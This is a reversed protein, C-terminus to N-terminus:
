KSFPNWFGYNFNIDYQFKAGGIYGFNVDVGFNIDESQRNVMLHGNYGVHAGGATAGVKTFVSFGLFTGGVGVDGNLAHAGASNGIKFGYVDNEAIFGLKSNAFAKFASGELSGRVGIWNKYKLGGSINGEVGSVEAGVEYNGQTSNNYSKFNFSKIEGNLYNNKNGYHVGGLAGSFNIHDEDSGKTYLPGGYFGQERTKGTITVTEIGYLDPDVAHGDNDIWNKGNGTLTDGNPAKTTAGKVPPDGDGGEPSMGTPDTLNIPNQMTYNYPNWNPFIEALPDVSLWISFKPNYYRAGYYYFGTEEDLEKGNFKYRNTYDGSYSHQEIM